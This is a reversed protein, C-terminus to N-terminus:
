FRALTTEKSRELAGALKAASKEGMRELEALKPVGLRYLDAADKVLGDDVLQDVLKSGLGEIDMARRSAFHRLSEKLQAACVLAGTCRAVAEGEEREIESGCVPCRVPLEVRHTKAPRKEPIVRVVEPIVDGARRLVVTDGVRVDK